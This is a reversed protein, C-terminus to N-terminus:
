GWALTLQGMRACIIYFSFAHITEADRITVVEDYESPDSEGAAVEDEEM